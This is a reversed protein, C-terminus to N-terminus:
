YPLKGGGTKFEHRHSETVSITSDLVYYSNNRWESSSKIASFPELPTMMYRASRLPGAPTTFLFSKIDQRYTRSTLARVAVSLKEKLVTEQRACSHCLPEQSKQSETMMKM